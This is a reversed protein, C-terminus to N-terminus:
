NKRAAGRLAAFAALRAAVTIVVAIPLVQDLDTAPTFAVLVFAVAVGGMSLALASAVRPARLTRRVMLRAERPLRLVMWAFWAATAAAAAGLAIVFPLRNVHTVAPIWILILAILTFV